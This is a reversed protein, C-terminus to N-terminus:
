RFLFKPKFLFCLAPILILSCFLCFAISMMILFGFSRIIGFSSFVLVSFGIIVSLANITIGYGTTKISRSIAKSIINGNKIEKKIRWLIHITYDVGLGISISSLLATVIDLQIHTWGMIGFTCVISFLLPLGGLLGAIISKFILTLLILIAFFAFILSYLQGKAIAESM